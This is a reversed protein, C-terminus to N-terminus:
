ESTYFYFEIDKKHVFKDLFKQYCTIVSENLYYNEDM